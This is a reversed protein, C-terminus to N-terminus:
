LSGLIIGLLIGVLITFIVMLIAILSKKRMDIIVYKNLKVKSM